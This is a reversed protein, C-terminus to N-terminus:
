YNDSVFDIYRVHWNPLTEARYAMQWLYGKLTTDLSAYGRQDLKRGAKSGWEGFPLWGFISRSRVNAGTENFYQEGLAVASYYESRLRLKRQDTLNLEHPNGDYDFTSHPDYFPDAGKSPYAIELYDNFAAGVGSHRRDVSQNLRELILLEQKAPLLVEDRFRELRQIRRTLTERQETTTVKGLESNLEKLRQSVRYRAETNRAWEDHVIEKLALREIEEQVEARESLTKISTVSDNITDYASLLKGLAGLAKRFNKLREAQELIKESTELVDGADGADPFPESDEITQEVKAIAEALAPPVVPGALYFVGEEDSRVLGGVFPDDTYFEGTEVDVFIWRGDETERVLVKGERLGLKLQELEAKRAAYARFEALQNAEATANDVYGNGALWNAGSEWGLAGAVSALGGTVAGGLWGFGGAVQEGLWGLGGGVDDWVEGAERRAAALFMDLATKEEPTDIPSGDDDPRPPKYTLGFTASSGGFRTWNWSATGGFYGSGAGGNAGGSIYYGNGLNQNYTVGIGVNGNPGYKEGGYGTLGVSYTEGEPGTNYGVRWGLDAGGSADGTQWLGGVSLGVGYRGQEGISFDLGVGQSGSLSISGGWGAQESYSVGLGVGKSVEAGVGVSWGEQFTYSLNTNVAGKSVIAPVVSAAGALAGKTGGEYSGRVGSYSGVAALVGSAIAAAPPFVFSVAYLVGAVITGGVKIVADIEDDNRQWGKSLGVRVRQNMDEYQDLGRRAAGIQAQAIPLQRNAVQLMQVYKSNRELVDLASSMNRVAGRHLATLNTGFDRGMRGGTSERMARGDAEMQDFFNRITLARYYEEFHHRGFTGGEVLGVTYGSQMINRACEDMSEALNCTSPNIAAASADALAQQWNIFVLGSTGEYDVEEDPDYTQEFEKELKNRVLRVMSELEASSPGGDALISETDTLNWEKGESDKVVAESRLDPKLYFYDHFSPAFVPISPQGTLVAQATKIQKTYLDGMKVWNTQGMKQDMQLQLRANAEAITEDFLDILGYLSDLSQLRVLRQAMEGYRENLDDYRDQISNDFNQDKLEDLFIQTNAYEGAMVVSENLTDPKNALVRNLIENANIEVQMDAALGSRLNTVMENIEDYLERLTQEDAGQAALTTFEQTWEQEDVIAESIRELYLDEAAKAEADFDKRWENWATAMETTMDSWKQEGVNTLQAINEGWEQRKKRFQEMRLDWEHRQSAVRQQIELEAVQDVVGGEGHYDEALKRYMEFQVGVSAAQQMLTGYFEEREDLITVMDAQVRDETMTEAARFYEEREIEYQTQSMAALADTFEDASVMLAIRRGYKDTGTPNATINGASFEGDRVYFGFEDHIAKDQAIPLGNAGVVDDLSLDEKGGKWILQDLTGSGQILAVDDATLGYEPDDLVDRLKEVSDIDTLRHLEAYLNKLENGQQVLNTTPLGYLRDMARDLQDKFATDKAYLQFLFGLGAAYIVAQGAVDANYLATM